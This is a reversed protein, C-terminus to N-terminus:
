KGDKEKKIRLLDGILLYTYIYCQSLEYKKISTHVGKSAVDYISDIRNCNYGLEDILLKTNSKSKSNEFVYQWLRNKYMDDSLIRKKGDACKVECNTAPYLIDAMTKLIRRCTLIGQSWDEQKKSKRREEISLFQNIIEKDLNQLEIEIFNKNENFIDVQVKSTLISKEADSVYNIARIKIREIVAVYQDISSSFINRLRDNEEKKYYADLTHLNTPVNLDQIIQKLNEIKSVIEGVSIMIVNENYNKTEFDYINATREDIYKNQMRNLGKKFHETTILKILEFPVSETINDQFHSIDRTSKTEM